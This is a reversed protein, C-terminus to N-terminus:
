LVWPRWCASQHRYIFFISPIERIIVLLSSLPLFTFTLAAQELIIV